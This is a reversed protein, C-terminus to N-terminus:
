FWIRIGLAPQVEFTSLNAGGGTIPVLAPAVELFIELVSGVPWIQLGVPLRAGLAFSSMSGTGFAIYGGIGVYYDLMGSLRGHAFWYDVTADVASGGSEFVGGVAFYLPVRPIHFVVRGGWDAFNISAVEAGIAIDRAFAATSACLMILTVFIALVIRKKM